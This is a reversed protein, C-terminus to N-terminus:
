DQLDSFVEEVSYSQIVQNKDRQEHGDLLAKLSKKDQLLRLTEQMAEYDDQPIMVIAGNESAINVEEHTRLIYNIHGILDSNAQKITVTKM